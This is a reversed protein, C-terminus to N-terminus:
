YLSTAQLEEFVGYIELFLRRSKQPVPPKSCEHKESKLILNDCEKCRSKFICETKSM